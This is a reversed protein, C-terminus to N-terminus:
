PEDKRKMSREVSFGEPYRARLKEVNARAVEDASFGFFDALVTRYWDIDGLEKKVKDPALPHGHGWSKKLMDLLEGVEGALGLCWILADFKQLLQQATAHDHKEELAAAAKRVIEPYADASRPATRMAEAQYQNLTMGNGDTM